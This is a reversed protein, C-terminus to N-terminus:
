PQTHRHLSFTLTSNAPFTTYRLLTRHEKPDNGIVEDYEPFYASLESKFRTAEQSRLQRGRPKASEPVAQLQSLENKLSAATKSQTKTARTPKDKSQIPKAVTTTAITTTSTLPAPPATVSKADAKGAVPLEVAINLRPKKVKFVDYDHDHEIQRKNRSPNTGYKRRAPANTAAFPRPRVGSEIRRTSRTVSTTAM